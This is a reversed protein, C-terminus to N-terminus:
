KSDGNSSSSTESKLSKLQKIESLFSRLSAHGKHCKTQIFPHQFYILIVYQEIRKQQCVMLLEAATPRKIPDKILCSAIFENLESSWKSPDKLKPPERNPIMGMVLIPNKEAFPP